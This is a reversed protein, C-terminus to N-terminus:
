PLHSLTEYGANFARAKRAFNRGEGVELRLLSIWAYRQAYNRVIQDTADTSGDSVIVWRLPLRSQKIMSQLTREILEEENRAPTVLVYTPPSSLPAATMAGDRHWGVSRPEDSPAPHMRAM